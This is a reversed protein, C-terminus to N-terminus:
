STLAAHERETERVGERGGEGREREIEEETCVDNQRDKKKRRETSTWEYGVVEQLRLIM